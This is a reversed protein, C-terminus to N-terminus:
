PPLIAHSRIEADGPEIPLLPDVPVPQALIADLARALHHLLVPEARKQAHVVLVAAVDGARQGGAPVSRCEGHIGFSFTRCENAQIFPAAPGAAVWCTVLNVLAIM